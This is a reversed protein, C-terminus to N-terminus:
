KNLLMKRSYNASVLEDMATQERRDLELAHRAKQTERLRETVKVERSAAAVIQTQEARAQKKQEIVAKAERISRDLAAIHNTNLEMEYANM